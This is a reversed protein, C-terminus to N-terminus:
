LFFLTFQCANNLIFFSHPSATANIIFYIRKALDLDNVGIVGAMTDPMFQFAITLTFSNGHHGSLYKTASHYEIDVGMSELPRQLYPSMM